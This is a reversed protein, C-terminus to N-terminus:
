TRRKLMALTTLDAAGTLWLMAAYVAGAVGLVACLGLGGALMSGSYLQGALAAQVGWTAGMMVCTALAVRWARRKTLRDLLDGAGDRRQRQGLRWGLVALNTWTALSTALAIGVAGLPQVLWVAFAINAAVAVVGSRAPTATDGAAQFRAAALRVLMFAPIGVAYCALVQATGIADALTFAGRVFLVSLIPAGAVALGGAAPLGFLLALDVARSTTTRLAAPEGAHQAEAFLPLVTTYLAIGIVGLPLQNLRDAYYLYSVAGVPLLSALVTSVVLNLQTASGGIIGPLLKRFFLRVEPAKFIEPRPWRWRLPVDSRRCAWALFVFQVAGAATMGWSLVHAPMATLPVFIVLAVIQVINFLIPAAAYYGNKGIANLVSGQLSALTILPLYPFTLLGLTVALGYRLPEDAFGPAILRIVWPMLIMMLGTFPILIAMLLSQVQEAFRQAAPLGDLHQSRKFAPVFAANVAGEAFLTRFLNPLRQAVVFADALPGAGLYNATLVDRVFGAVRSVLTLGGFTFFGRALTAM